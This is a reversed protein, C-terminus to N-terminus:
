HVRRLPVFGYLPLSVYTPNYLALELTPPTSWPSGGHLIPNGGWPSDGEFAPIWGKIDDDIVWGPPLPDGISFNKLFRITDLPVDHPGYCVFGGGTCVVPIIIGAPANPYEISVRYRLDVTVANVGVLAAVQCLGASQYTYNSTTVAEFTLGEEAWDGAIPADIHGTSDRRAYRLYTPGGTGTKSYQTTTTVANHSVVDTPVNYNIKGTCTFPKAAGAPTQTLLHKNPDVMLNTPVEVYAGSPPSLPATAPVATGAGAYLAVHSIVSTGVDFHIWVEDCSFISQIAKYYLLRVHGAQDYRAGVVIGSCDVPWKAQSIHVAPVAPYWEAKGVEGEGFTDLHVETPVLPGGPFGDRTMQPTGPPAGQHPLWKGVWRNDNGLVGAQVGAGGGVNEIRNETCEQVFMPLNINLFDRLKRLMDQTPRDRIAPFDGGFCYGALAMAERTAAGIDDANPM